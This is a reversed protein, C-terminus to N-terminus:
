DFEPQINVVLEVFVCSRPRRSKTAEKFSKRASSSPSPTPAPLPCPPEGSPQVRLCSAPRFPRARPRAPRPRHQLGGAHPRDQSDCSRCPCRWAAPRVAHAGFDLLRSDRRGAKSGPALPEPSPGWAAPSRAQATPLRSAGASVAAGPSQQLGGSAGYVSQLTM